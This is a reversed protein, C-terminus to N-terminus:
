ARVEQQAPRVGCCAHTSEAFDHREKPSRTATGFDTPLERSTVPSDVKSVSSNFKMLPQIPTASFLTESHSASLFSAEGRDLELAGQGTAVFGLPTWAILDRRMMESLAFHIKRREVRLITQETRLAGFIEARTLPRSRILRLIREWRGGPVYGHISPLQTM